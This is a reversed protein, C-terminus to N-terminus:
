APPSRPRAGGRSGSPKPDPASPPRSPTGDPAVPVLTTSFWSWEPGVSRVFGLREYLTVARRNGETVNLAIVTEGRDRLARVGAVTLARGLGRGQTVPAVALSILLSGYPARVFLCVGCARGDETEALYSAGPLFEGWRGSMMDHVELESNRKPDPDRQYLYFDFHPGFAAAHVEVARPEDDARMSRIRFGAPVSPESLPASPPLRMESRAFQALGRTSAVRFEQEPTLGSLGAPLFMIPGVEAHVRDLFRGYAEESRFRSALHFVQVHRGPGPAGEDDWLVVGASTRDTRYLRGEITGARIRGAVHAVRPGPDQPPIAQRSAEQIAETALRVSTETDAALPALEPNSARPPM